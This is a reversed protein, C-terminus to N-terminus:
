DVSAKIIYTTKEKLGTLMMIKQAMVVQYDDAVIIKSTLLDFKNGQLKRDVSPNLGPLKNTFLQDKEIKTNATDLGNSEFFESIKINLDGNQDVYFFINDTGVIGQMKFIRQLITWDLKFEIKNQISNAKEVITEVDATPIICADRPTLTFNFSTAGDTINLMRDYVEIQYNDGFSKIISILKPLNAVGIDDHFFFPTEFKYMASRNGNNGFRNNASEDPAGTLTGDIVKIMDPSIFVKENIGALKEIIELEKKTFKFETIKESM